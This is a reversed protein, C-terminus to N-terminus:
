RLSAVNKEIRYIDNHNISEGKDLINSLVEFYSGFNEFINAFERHTNIYREVVRKDNMMQDCSVKMIASLERFDCIRLCFETRQILTEIVDESINNQFNNRKYLEFDQMSPQLIYKYFLDKITLM